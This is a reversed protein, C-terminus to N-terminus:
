ECRTGRPRRRTSSSSNDTSSVTSPKNNGRWSRWRWRTSGRWCHESWRWSCVRFARHETNQCFSDPGLSQNTPKECPSEVNLPRRVTVRLASGRLIKRANDCSFSHNNGVSQLFFSQFQKHVVIAFFLVEKFPAICLSSVSLLWRHRRKLPQM